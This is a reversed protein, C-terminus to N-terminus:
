RKSRSVGPDPQRRGVDDRPKRPEDPDRRVRRRWRRRHRGRAPRRPLAARGRHGLLGQRRHLRFAPRRCHDQRHRLERPQDPRRRFRPHYGAEGGAGQFVDLGGGDWLVDGGGSGFITKSFGAEVYRIIHRAPHYDELVLSDTSGNRTILLDTGIKQFTLQTKTLGEFLIFSKGIDSVTDQGWRPGFVYSDIGAGGDLADRGANGIITDAFRTGGMDDDGASGRFTQGRALDLTILRGLQLKEVSLGDADYQGEIEASVRGLRDSVVLSDGIRALYATSLNLHSFYAVDKLGGVDEVITDHGFTQSVFTYTDNGEGGYLDDNGAGGAM